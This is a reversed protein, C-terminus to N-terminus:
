ANKKFGSFIHKFDSWQLITNSKIDDRMRDVIAFADVKIKEIATNSDNISMERWDTRYLRENLENIDNTLAKDECILIAEGILQQSEGYIQDFQVATEAPVPVGTVDPHVSYIINRMRVWHGIIADYVKIKNDITRHKFSVKMSLSHVVFGGAAGIIFTLLEM